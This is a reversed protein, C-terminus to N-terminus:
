FLKFLKAHLFYFPTLIKRLYNKFTERYLCNCFYYIFINAAHAIALSFTSVTYLGVYYSSTYYIEADIINDIIFFIQYPTTGVIFLVSIWLVLFTINRNAKSDAMTCYQGGSITKVSSPSVNDVTINM